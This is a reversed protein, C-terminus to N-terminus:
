LIFLIAVSRTCVDMTIIHMPNRPCQTLYRLSTVQNTLCTLYRPLTM